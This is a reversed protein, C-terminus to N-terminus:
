TLPNNTRKSEYVVKLVIPQDGGSHEHKETPKGWVYAFMLKRAENRIAFDQSECDDMLMTLCKERREPTWLNEALEQFRAVRAEPRRGSRGKVGAM